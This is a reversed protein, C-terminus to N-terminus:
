KGLKTSFTMPIKIPVTNFRHIAIPLMVMGVTYNQQDMLVSPRGMELTMKMEKKKKQHKLNENCLDKVELTLNIGLYKKWM